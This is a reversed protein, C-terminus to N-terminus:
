RTDGARTVREVLRKPARNLWATLLASRVETKRAAKLLINTGGQRGWAGKVPTFARPHTTVFSKQQSPTLKVMAWGAQPYDLTAFIKGKVRFDPHSMHEAEIAEPLSLAMKRFDVGTMDCGPRNVRV